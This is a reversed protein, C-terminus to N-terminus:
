GLNERVKEIMQEIAKERSTKPQWGLKQLESIDPMCEVPGDKPHPIAGFNLRTAAGTKVKLLELFTKISIPEGYGIELQHRPSFSGLNDLIVSFARVVDEVPVLDRRQDGLTLDIVETNRLLQLMMSKVFQEDDEEAGFFLELAVDLIQMESDFYSFWASTQHKSLAYDNVSKPLLTNVYLFSKVGHAAAAELLQLSFLVNAAVLESPKPRFRRQLAAAHIVVDFAQGEFVAELDDPKVEVVRVGDLLSTIKELDSQPRKLITIDHETQLIALLSSGLFGTAGTLLIRVVGGM